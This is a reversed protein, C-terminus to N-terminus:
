FPVEEEEGDDEEELKDDDLIDGDADVEPIEIKLEKQMKDAFGSAIDIPEEDLSPGKFDVVFETVSEVLDNYKKEFDQGKKLPM